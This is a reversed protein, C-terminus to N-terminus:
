GKARGRFGEGPLRHASRPIRYAPREQRILIQLGSSTFCKEYQREFNAVAVKLATPGVEGVADKLTKSVLNAIGKGVFTKILAPDLPQFGLAARMRNAAEAIDGATDLLTGDLDLLVAKLPIPFAFKPKARYRPRKAIEAPADASVGISAPTELANAEFAAGTSPNPPTEHPLEQVDTM